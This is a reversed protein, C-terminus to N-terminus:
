CFRCSYCSSPNATWCEYLCASEKRLVVECDTNTFDSQYSSFTRKRYMIYYNYMLPLFGAKTPQLSRSEKVFHFVIVKSFLPQQM